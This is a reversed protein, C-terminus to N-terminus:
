QCTRSKSWMGNTSTHKTRSHLMRTLRLIIFFRIRPFSVNVRRKKLLMKRELNKYYAGKARAKSPTEDGFEDKVEDDDGDNIVLLFENPM